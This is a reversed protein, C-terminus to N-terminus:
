QCRWRRQRPGSMEHCDHVTPITKLSVTLTIPSGKQRFNLSFTNQLGRHPHTDTHCPKLQRKDLGHRRQLMRM